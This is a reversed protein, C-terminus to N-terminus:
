SVTVEHNGPVPSMVSLLPSRSQFSVKPCLALNICLCLLEHLLCAPGYYIACQMM